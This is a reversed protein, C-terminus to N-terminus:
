VASKVPDCFYNRLLPSGRIFDLLAADPQFGDKLQFQPRGALLRTAVSPWASTKLKELSGPLLFAHARDLYLRSSDKFDTTAPDVVVLYLDPRLFRL